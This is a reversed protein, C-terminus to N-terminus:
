ARIYEPKGSIGYFEGKRGRINGFKTALVVEQRRGKVAKGLLEENSFPGYMDATDLFNVGLDLARELTAFSEQDDREGYFESMGMCGLGMRSVELGQNGLKVTKIKLGEMIGEVTEPGALFAPWLHM